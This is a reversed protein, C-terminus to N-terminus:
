SVAAYADAPMPAGLLYGQIFDCGLDELVALQGETEVGEAVVQMGLGRALAIMMAVIHRDQPDSEIGHVFARDVKLTDIPFEKLRSLSSYGTGFDDIALKLGLSKIRRLTALAEAPRSALMSETIELELMAPPIGSEELALDLLLSEHQFQRASINVAVPGHLSRDRRWSAIQRSATRITWAGVAQILGTEELLPIFEAPSVVAGDSRQWRLLAEAGALRRGPMSFKPQYYLVFQERDVAHRLATELELRELARANMQPAYFRFANRGGEKAKYMATDASKILLEPSDGDEPYVSVGISPTVYLEHRGVQLPQGFANLLKRAVVAADEKRMLEPLILGFEDGGLRAVVDDERVAARLLAAARQLLRDGVDHGLTDNISKFRDLDVFLVAVFRQARRGAAIAAGLREYFLARNPIGTLSDYRAMHDLRAEARRREELEVTLQENSLEFSRTREYVRRELDRNVRQLELEMSRRQSNEALLMEFMRQRGRLVAYGILAALVAAAGANAFHAFSRDIFPALLEEM